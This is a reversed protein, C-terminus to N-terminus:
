VVDALTRAGQDSLLERTVVSVSLPTEALRASDLTGTTIADSLYDDNVSDQVVVTTTVRPLQQQPNQGPNTSQAAPPNAPQAKPSQGMAHEPPAAACVLVCAAILCSRLRSKSPASGAFQGPM